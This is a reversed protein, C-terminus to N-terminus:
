QLGVKMLKVIRGEISKVTSIEDLIINGSILYLQAFEFNNCSIDRGPLKTASLKAM